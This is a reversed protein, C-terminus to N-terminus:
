TGHHHRRRRKWQAHNNQCRSSCFVKDHRTKRKFGDNPELKFRRGCWLCVRMTSDGLAILLDAKLWQALTYVRFCFRSHLTDTTTEGHEERFNRIDKLIEPEMPEIVVRPGLTRNDPTLERALVYSIAYLAAHQYFNLEEQTGTKPVINVSLSPPMYANKNIGFWTPFNFPAFTVWYMGDEQRRPNGWEDAEFYIWKKLNKVERKSAETYREHLFYLFTAERWFDELSEALADPPVSLFGYERVFNAVANEWAPGEPRDLHNRVLRFLKDRLNDIVAKAEADHKPRYSLNPTASRPEGERAVVRVVRVFSTDINTETLLERIRDIVESDTLDFALNQLHAELMRKAM